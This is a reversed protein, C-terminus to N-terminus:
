SGEFGELIIMRPHAIARPLRFTSSYNSVANASNHRSCRAKPLFTVRFCRKSGFGAMVCRHSSPLRGSLSTWAAEISRGPFSGDESLLAM